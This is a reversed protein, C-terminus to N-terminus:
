SQVWDPKNDPIEAWAIPEMNLTAYQEYDHCAVWGWAEGRYSMVVVEPAGEMDPVYGFVARGKCQFDGIETPASEMQQWDISM